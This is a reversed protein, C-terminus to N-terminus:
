KLLIEKKIKETRYILVEDTNKLFFIYDHTRGIYRIQSNTMISIDDILFEIKKVVRAHKIKEADKKALESLVLFISLIIAAKLLLVSIRGYIIKIFVIIVISLSLIGRIGFYIANNYSIIVKFNSYALYISVAILLVYPIANIVKVGCNLKPNFEREEISLEKIIQIPFFSLGVIGYLLLFELIDGAFYIIAEDLQIYDTININFEKYFLYMKVIGSLILILSALPLFKIFNEFTFQNM